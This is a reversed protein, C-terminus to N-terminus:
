YYRDDETYVLSPYFFLVLLHVFFANSAELAHRCIFAIRLVCELSGATQLAKSIDSEWAEKFILQQSM